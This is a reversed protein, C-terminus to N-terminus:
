FGLCNFANSGTKSKYWQGGSKTENCKECKRAESPNKTMNLSTAPLSTQNHLIYWEFETVTPNPVGLHQWLPKKEWLSEIINSGSKIGNKKKERLSEFSQVDTDGKWEYEHKHCLIGFMCLAHWWLFREFEKQTKPLANANMWANVDNSSLIKM